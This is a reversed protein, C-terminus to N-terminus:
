QHAVICCKWLCLREELVLRQRQGGRQVLLHSPFLFYYCLETNVLVSVVVGFLFTIIFM